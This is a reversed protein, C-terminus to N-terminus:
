ETQNVSCPLYGETVFRSAQVNWTWTVDSDNGDFNDIMVTEVSRSPAQGFAPIGVALLLAFSAFVVLGKKM